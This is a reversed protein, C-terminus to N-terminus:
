VITISPYISLTNSIKENQSTNTLYIEAHLKQISQDIFSSSFQIIGDADLVYGKQINSTKILTGNQLFVEMIGLMPTNVLSPNHTRYNVFVNLQNSNADKIYSFKEANLSLTVRDDSYSILSSRQSSDEPEQESQQKYDHDQAYAGKNIKSINLAYNTSYTFIIGLSIVIALISIILIFKMFVPWKKTFTNNNNRLSNVVLALLRHLIDM